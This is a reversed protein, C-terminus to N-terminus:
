ARSLQAVLVALKPPLDRPVELETALEKGIVAQIHPILRTSRVLDHTLGVALFAVQQAAISGFAELAVVGPHAGLTIGTLVVGIASLIGAPLLLFVRYRLLACLAGAALSVTVCM